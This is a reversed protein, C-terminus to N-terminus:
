ASLAGACSKQAEESDSSRRVRLLLLLLAPLLRHDPGPALMGEASGKVSFLRADTIIVAAL